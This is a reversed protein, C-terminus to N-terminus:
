GPKKKRRKLGGVTVSSVSVGDVMYVIDSQSDLMECKRLDEREIHPSQGLGRWLAKRDGKPFRRSQIMM